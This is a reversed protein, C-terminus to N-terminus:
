ATKNELMRFSSTMLKLSLLSVFAVSLIAIGGYIPLSGLLSLAIQKWLAIATGTDTTLLSLYDMFGSTSIENGLYQFAPVAAVLSLGALGGFAFVRIKLARRKASALRFLVAEILKPPIEKPPLEDFLEKLSRATM